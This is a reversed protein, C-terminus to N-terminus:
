IKVGILVHLIEEKSTMAMTSTLSVLPVMPVSIKLDFNVKRLKITM